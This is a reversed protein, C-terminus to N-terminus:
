DIVCHCSPNDATVDTHNSISYKVTLRLQMELCTPRRSLSVSSFCHCSVCLVVLPLSVSYDASVTTERLM